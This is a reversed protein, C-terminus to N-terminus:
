RNRLFRGAPSGGHRRAALRVEQRGAVARPRDPLRLHDSVRLRAATDPSLRSLGLREKVAAILAQDDLPGRANALIDLLSLIRLFQEYRALNRPM